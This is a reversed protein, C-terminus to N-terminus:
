SPNGDSCRRRVEAVLRPLYERAAAIFQLDAAPAPRDEHYVYMDPQSDDMAGLRIFSCGGIPAQEEIFALWPAPSAAAVLVEIRDLEEDTLPDDAM